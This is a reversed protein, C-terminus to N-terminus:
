REDLLFFWCSELPIHRKSKITTDQLATHCVHERKAQRHCLRNTQENAKKKKKQLFRLIIRNKRSLILPILQCSTQCTRSVMNRPLRDDMVCLRDREQEHHYAFEIKRSIKAKTTKFVNKEKEKRFYTHSRDFEFHDLSIRRREADNCGVGDNM